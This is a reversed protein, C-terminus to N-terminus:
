RVPKVRKAELLFEIWQYYEAVSMYTISINNRDSPNTICVRFTDGIRHVSIAFKEGLSMMM